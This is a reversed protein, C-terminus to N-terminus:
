WRPLGWLGQGQVEGLPIPTSKATKVEVLVPRPGKPTAEIMLLREGRPGPAPSSHEPLGDGFSKVDRGALDCTEWRGRKDRSLIRQGALFVPSDGRRLEKFRGGRVEIRLVAAYPPADPLIRERRAVLLAKGDPFWSLTEGAHFPVGVRSVRESALDILTLQAQGREADRVHLVAVQRGDPSLASAQCAGSQLASGGVRRARGRPDIRYLGLGHADSARVLRGEPLLPGPLGAPLEIPPRRVRGSRLEVERIDLDIRRLGPRWLGAHALQVWEEPEAGPGPGPGAAPRQDVLVPGDTAFVGLDLDSVWQFGALRARFDPPGFAVVLGLDPDVLVREGEELAHLAQRQRAEVQPTRALGQRAALSAALRELGRRQFTTLPRRYALRQGERGAARGLSGRVLPLRAADLYRYARSFLFPASRPAYIGRAGGAESVYWAGEREIVRLVERAPRDPLRLRILRRTAFPTRIVEVEVQAGQRTPFLLTWRAFEKALRAETAKAAALLAAEDPRARAPSPDPSPAQAAASGGSGLTLALSLGLTLTPTLSAVRPGSGRRSSSPM